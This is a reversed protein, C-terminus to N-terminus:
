RDSSRNSACLSTHSLSLWDCPFFLQLLDCPRWNTAIPRRWRFVRGRKSLLSLHPVQVPSKQEDHNSAKWALFTRREVKCLSRRRSSCANNRNLRTIISRWEYTTTINLLIIIIILKSLYDRKCIYNNNYYFEILIFSNWSFFIAVLNPLFRCTASQRRSPLSRSLHNWHWM